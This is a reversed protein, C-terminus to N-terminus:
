AASLLDNDRFVALLLKKVPAPLPADQLKDTQYWVHRAEAAM